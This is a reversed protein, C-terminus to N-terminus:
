HTQHSKAYNIFSHILRELKKSKYLKAYQQIKKFNLETAIAELRSEEWFIPTEKLSGSNLYFYDVLAKEKEAMLTEPAFGTFAERKIKHYVFTGVPTKFRRSGTPTVLTYEFVAEPMIGHFNLVYELSFYCPSYLHRAIEEKKVSEEPFMFLGRRLSVLEGRKVWQHLQLNVVKSKNKFCVVHAEATTFIPKEMKKRFDNLKM